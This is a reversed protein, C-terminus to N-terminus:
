LPFTKISISILCSQSRRLTRLFLYWDCFPARLPTQMPFSSHRSGKSLHGVFTGSGEELQFRVMLKGKPTELVIEEGLHFITASAMGVIHKFLDDLDFHLAVERDGDREGGPFPEKMRVRVDCSHDKAMYSLDVQSSSVCTCFSSENLQMILKNSDAHTIKPFHIAPLDELIMGNLDIHSSAKIKQAAQTASQLGAILGKKSAPPAIIDAKLLMEEPATAMVIKIDAETLMSVDNYDDGAAIIPGNFDILQSLSRLAYGKSVEPHTAQVVFYNENFPDRIVPVHLGLQAEIRKAVGLVSQCNGFCKISPFEELHLEEFNTISKWVERYATVRQHLYDRLGPSFHHPRYYSIDHNEFGSFIVFDTPEDACILEMKQFIDRHLYRKSVLQKSPMELIISGNQVALYYKFPLCSLLEQSGFFSRGTIFLISYEKSLYKLYEVVEVPIEQGPVTTTGDIDLAILGKM